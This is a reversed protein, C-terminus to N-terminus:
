DREFEFPVESGQPSTINFQTMDESRRGRLSGSM